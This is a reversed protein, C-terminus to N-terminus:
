ALSTAIAASGSTAYCSPGEGGTIRLRPQPAAREVRDLLVESDQHVRRFQHRGILFLLKTFLKLQRQRRGDVLAVAHALKHRVELLLDRERLVFDLSESFAFGRILPSEVADFAVDRVGDLNESPIGFFFVAPKLTFGDGEAQSAARGRDLDRIFSATGASYLVSVRLNCRGDDPRLDEVPEIGVLALLRTLSQLARRCKSRALVRDFGGDAGARSPRAGVERYALCRQPLLQPHLGTAIRLYEELPDACKGARHATGSGFYRPQAYPITM